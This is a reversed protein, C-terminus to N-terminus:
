KFYRGKGSIWAIIKYIPNELLKRVKKLETRIEIGQPCHKECKGCGICRSANTRNARFTTAMIYERMANKFGDSYRVNYSRFCGPIDVGQPCPQCYGCGTCNIKIKNNILRKSKEFLALEKETMEGVAVESATKVNDDIQEISNMGSLVVKVEKHSLIWRLAWEDISRKPEANKWLKEAEKPLQNVLRGGRLPEMIVVPIGKDYAYKIGKIGAQSHEDIYNFQVQCIDWDYIDLLKIFGETNGHYSFGINIIQGKSRKEEIWKLIGLDCLRKWTDVDSLMHMLYYDIYDTQLRRLEEMFYKDLDEYKRVMYHPLKTAIKVKDRYGKALFNGVLEESGSYIYATDFYNVGQEIAHLMEQEAKERDISGHKKTYRMCGYGLISLKDGNRKNERYQM